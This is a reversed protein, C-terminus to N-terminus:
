FLADGQVAFNVTADDSDNGAKRLAGPKVKMRMIAEGGKAKVEKSFNAKPRDCVCM